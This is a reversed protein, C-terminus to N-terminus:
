RCRCSCGRGRCARHRLAVGSCRSSKRRCGATEEVIPSARLRVSRRCEAPWRPSSCSCSGISGISRRCRWRSSRSDAAATRSSRGRTRSLHPRSTRHSVGCFAASVSTAGAAPCANCSRTRKRTARAAARDLLQRGRKRSSPKTRAIMSPRSTLRSALPWRRPAPLHLFARVPFPAIEDSASFM